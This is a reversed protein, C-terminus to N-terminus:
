SKKKTKKIEGIPEVIAYKATVKKVKFVYPKGELSGYTVDSFPISQYAAEAAAAEKAGVKVYYSRGRVFYYENRGFKSKRLPVVRVHEAKGGFVLFTKGFKPAVKEFIKHFVTKEKKSKSTKRQKGMDIGPIDYKGPNRIWTAVHKPTKAAYKEDLSRARKSRKLHIKRLKAMVKSKKLAERITLKRVGKRKRKGM